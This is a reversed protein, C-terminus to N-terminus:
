KAQQTPKQNQKRKVGHKSTNNKTDDRACRKQSGWIPECAFHTAGTLPALLNLDRRRESKRLNQKQVKSGPLPIRRKM